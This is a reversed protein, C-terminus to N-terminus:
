ISFAIAALRRVSAIPSRRSIAVSVSMVAEFRKCGVKKNFVLIEDKVTRYHLDRAQDLAEPDVTMRKIMKM